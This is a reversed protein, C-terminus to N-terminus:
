FDSKSSSTKFKVADAVSKASWSSKLYQQSKIESTSESPFPMAVSSQSMEPGSRRNEHITFSAFLLTSAIATVAFTQSSSLAVSENVMSTVITFRAGSAFIEWGSPPNTIVSPSDIVKLALLEDSVGVSRFM